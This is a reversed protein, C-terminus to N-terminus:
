MRRRQWAVDDVGKGVEEAWVGRDPGGEGVCRRLECVSAARTKSQGGAEM